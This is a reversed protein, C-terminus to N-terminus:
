PSSASPVRLQRPPLDSLSSLRRENQEIVVNLSTNGLIKSPEPSKTLDAFCFPLLSKPSVSPIWLDVCPFATKEKHCVILVKESSPAQRGGM